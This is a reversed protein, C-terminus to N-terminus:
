NPVKFEGSQIRRLLDKACYFADPNEKKVRDSDIVIKLAEEVRGAEIIKALCNVRTRTGGINKDFTNEGNNYIEEVLKTKLLDDRLENIRLLFAEMYMGVFWLGASRYTRIFQSDTINIQM